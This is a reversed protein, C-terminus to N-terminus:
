EFGEGAVRARRREDEDALRRYQDRQEWVSPRASGPPAAAAGAVGQVEVQAAVEGVHLTM